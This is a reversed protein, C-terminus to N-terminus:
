VEPLLGVFLAYDKSRISDQLPTTNWVRVSIGIMVAAIKATAAADGSQGIPWQSRGL